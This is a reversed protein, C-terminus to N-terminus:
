IWATATVTENTVNSWVCKLYQYPVLEQLLYATTATTTISIASVVFTRPTAVLAYPVNYFTSNDMSGQINLTVAPGAGGTNAIVISGGGYFSGRYATNTSNYPGAGNTLAVANDLVVAKLGYSIEGAGSGVAAQSSATLIAM